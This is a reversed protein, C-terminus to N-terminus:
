FRPTWVNWLYRKDEMWQLLDQPYSYLLIAGAKLSSVTYIPYFCTLGLNASMFRVVRYHTNHNLHPIAVHPCLPLLMYDKKFFVCPATFSPKLSFSTRSLASEQPSTHIELLGPPKFIHLHLNCLTQSFGLSILSVTLCPSSM